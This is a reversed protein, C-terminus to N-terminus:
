SGFVGIKIVGYKKKIQGEYKKLIEIANMRFGKTDFHKIKIRGTM